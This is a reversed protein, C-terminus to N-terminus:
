WELNIWIRLHLAFEELKTILFKHLCTFSNLLQFNIKRIYVFCVFKRFIKPYQRFLNLPSEVIYLRKGYIKMYIDISNVM